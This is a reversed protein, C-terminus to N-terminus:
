LAAVGGVVVGAVGGVLVWGAGVVGMVPMWLRVADRVEFWRGAPPVERVERAERLLLGALRRRARRERRLSDLWRVLWAVVLVAGLAVGLRHVVETSM